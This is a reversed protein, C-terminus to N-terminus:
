PQWGSRFGGRRQRQYYSRKASGPHPGQRVPSHASPRHEARPAHESRTNHETRPAHAQSHSHVPRGHTTTFRPRSSDPRHHSTAPRHHSSEARHHSPASHSHASAPRHSTAAPAHKAPVNEAPTFEITKVPITKRLLRQIGRLNNREGADCFAIAEGMTGARATRGIRHVYAEPEHPIDYNVVLAIGKVDIGRAAVDTAVLVQVRGSRFTELARQRAAQSKNGHIAEAAFGDRCLNKALKNASHKTRMFVLVLGKQETLVHRLLPYKQGSPVNVVSQNIGEASTKEPTVAIRVPNRVVRSALDLISPPLTASFLLSQRELPLKAIIRKLDPAFGMDLMRDAEDLVFIEVRDFRVHGQSALDLLRGPTAVVIDADHAGRVQPHQGVGGFIVVHRLRLHRGYASFSDGIQVALERTPTLILARPSRPLRPPTTASLLQLIPLAFAATKGTGTQASGMVDRGALLHPIAEAQIPSPHLYNKESLARLLPATLGLQAFTVTPPTM